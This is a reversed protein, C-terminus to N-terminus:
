VESRKGPVIYVVERYPRVQEGVRDTLINGSVHMLTDNFDPDKVMGALCPYHHHLLGAEQEADNASVGVLGQAVRGTGGGADLLLGECPLETHAALQDGQPAQFIMDYLPALFGFHDLRPM